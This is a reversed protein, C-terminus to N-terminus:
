EQLLVFYEEKRLLITEEQPLLHGEEEVPVLDEEQPTERSPTSEDDGWDAEGETDPELLAPM